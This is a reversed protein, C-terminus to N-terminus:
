AARGSAAPSPAATHAALLTSEELDVMAAAVGGALYGYSARAHVKATQLERPEVGEAHWLIATPARVTQVICIATRLPLTRTVLDVVAPISREIGQFGTLLKSIEYL